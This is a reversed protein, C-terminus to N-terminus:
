SKKELSIIKYFLSTEVMMSVASALVLLLGTLFVAILLVGFYFRAYVNLFIMVSTASFCVISAYALIIANKVYTARRMLHDVQKKLSQFRGEEQYTREAKSGLVRKEENLVRFRNALSSFKNQFGLLLLAASSVMVAPALVYQIEQVVRPIDM